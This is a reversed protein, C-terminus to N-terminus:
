PESEQKNKNRYVTKDLIYSIPSLQDKNELIHAPLEDDEESDDTEDNYTNHIKHLLDKQPGVVKSKVNSTTVKIMFKRIRSDKHFIFLSCESFYKVCKALSSQERSEGVLSANPDIVPIADPVVKKM